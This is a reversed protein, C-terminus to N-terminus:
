AVAVSVLDSMRDVPDVVALRLSLASTPDVGPPFVISLLLPSSGLEPFAGSLNVGDVTQIPEIAHGAWQAWAALRFQAVAKANALPPDAITLTVTCSGASVQRVVTVAAPSLAKPPQPPIHMLVRPASPLSPPRPQSAGSTPDLSQIGGPPVLPAVGAPLNREPPLRVDAWYAYRVFPVLGAGGNDDTVSAAFTVQDTASVAMSGKAIERAYIPDPVVGAARRIRFRPKENGQAGPNFLGPEDRQLAVADFASTSVALTAIGTTPDVSGDIRPALPIRDDPVAVPVIGCQDFPAELGDDTLPVVRLFQVTSLSRPLEITAIALGDGGAKIPPDTLLRFATRNVVAGGLIKQAGVAGVRGRSPGITAPTGPQHLENASLGLGQQDTLYVRHLSKPAAPWKLSIEVDPSPGPASTWFLGIGSPFLKPPRPDRFPVGVRATASSTGDEDLFVVTLDFTDSKQPGLGPLPITVTQLGPTSCDIPTAVGSVEAKEIRLAGAALDDLRPVLIASALSTTESPTFRDAPPLRPVAFTMHLKGPSVNAMSDPDVASGEVHFRLVPPPPVPRPPPAVVADIPPGFRGFFDSAAFRFQSTTAEASIHQESILGAPAISGGASGYLRIRSLSEVEHGFVRPAARRSPSHPGVDVFSHRSTWNGGQEEAIASLFALPPHSFAFSARYRSSPEAASGKEWRVETIQPKPLSPPLWPPVPAVVAVMTRIILRSAKAREITKNLQDAARGDHHFSDLALVHADFLSSEGTAVTLLDEGRTGGDRFGAPDIAFTGVIALCDWGERGDLDPLDDITGAFGLFRALGPDLAALQLAGLRPTNSYQKVGSPSPQQHKDIQKWPPDGDNVLRSVMTEIGGGPQPAALLANVRAIEDASGIPDFPGSPQDMVNLRLPAGRDVQKLGDTRSLTGFYWPFTGRIPLGFIGAVVRLNERGAVDSIDVRRTTVSVSAATGALRLKHLVPASFMWRPDTREAIIRDSQSLLTARKLHSDADPHLDVRVTRQQDTDGTILTADAIGLSALNLGPQVDGKRDTVVLGRPEFARSRIKFVTFPALPFAEGTGAFIRLHTGKLMDKDGGDVAFSYAAMVEPPAFLTPM